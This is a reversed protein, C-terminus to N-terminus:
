ENIFGMNECNLLTEPLIVEEPEEFDEKTEDKVNNKMNKLMVALKKFGNIRRQKKYCENELFSMYWTLVILLIAFVGYLGILIDLNNGHNVEYVCGLFLSISIITGLVGIVFVRNPIKNGRVEM